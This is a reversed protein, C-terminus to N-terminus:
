GGLPVVSVNFYSQSLDIICSPNPNMPSGNFRTMLLLTFPATNQGQLVVENTATDTVTFDGDEDFEFLLSYSKDAEVTEGQITIASSGYSKSVWTWKNSAICFYSYDDGSSLQGSADGMITGDLSSTDAVDIKLTVTGVHTLPEIKIWDGESDIGGVVSYEYGSNLVGNGSKCIWKSPQQGSGIESIKEAYGSFPTSASVDVGKAEIAAKINNKITNLLTLKEAINM